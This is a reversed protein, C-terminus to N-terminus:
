PFINIRSLSILQKGFVSFLPVYCIITMTLIKARLKFDFCQGTIPKKAKKRYLLYMGYVLSGISFGAIAGAVVDSVFHVGLYVRSYAMIFAWVYIMISYYRNRFLFATLSAFGFANAAHGSIFGYRGGAYGYLTRVHEEIGPYHTPRLRAFYPKCVTSAFQDCLVFMIAIAILVPLWERWRQRYVLLFLILIAMPVWIVGGSYLWMISDTFGTHSGNILFFLEREYPLIKELM